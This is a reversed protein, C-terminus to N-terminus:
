HAFAGAIDMYSQLSLFDAPCCQFKRVVYTVLAVYCLLAPLAFKPMSGCATQEVDSQGM